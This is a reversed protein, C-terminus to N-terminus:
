LAGREKVFRAILVTSICSFLTFSIAIDLIYTKQTFLAFACILMVVKSSIVNFALLRDWITPGIIMRIILIAIFASLLTYAIMPYNM